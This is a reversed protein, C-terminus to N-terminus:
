MDFNKNIEEICKKYKKNEKILCYHLEHIYVWVCAGPYVERNLFKSGYCYVIPSPNIKSAYESNWKYIM